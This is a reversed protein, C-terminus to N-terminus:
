DEFRKQQNSPKDDDQHDKSEPKPGQDKPDGSPDKKIQTRPTKHDAM